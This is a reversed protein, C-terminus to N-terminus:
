ADNGAHLAIDARRSHGQKLRDGRCLLDTIDSSHFDIRDAIETLNKQKGTSFNDVGRVKESRSLLARALSSGIFGGIGTILYLAM